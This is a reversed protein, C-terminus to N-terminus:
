SSVEKYTALTVSDGCIAAGSVKSVAYMVIQVDSVSASILFSQNINSPNPTLTVSTITPEYVAM